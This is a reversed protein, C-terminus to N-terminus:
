KLYEFKLKSVMKGNIFETQDVLLSRSDYQYEIVKKDGTSYHHEVGFIDLLKYAHSTVHDEETLLNDKNYKKETLHGKVGDKISYYRIENNNSDFEFINASTIEEDKNVTNVRILNRKNDYEFTGNLVSGSGNSSYEKVPKGYNNLEFMRTVKTKRVNDTFVESKLNGKEDYFRELERIINGDTKEVGKIKLTDSRYKCTTEDTKGDPKYRVEKLAYRMKNFDSTFVLYNLSDEQKQNYLICQVKKEKIGYQSLIRSETVSTQSFCTSIPFSLIVLIIFHKNM